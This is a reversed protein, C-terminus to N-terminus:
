FPFPDRRDLMCFDRTLEKTVFFSPTCSFVTESSRSLFPPPPAFAYIQKRPKTYQSAKNNQVIGAVFTWFSRRKRAKELWLRAIALSAGVLPTRPWGRRLAQKLCYM